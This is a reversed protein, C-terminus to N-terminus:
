LLGGSVRGDVAVTRYTTPDLPCGTRHPWKRRTYLGGPARWSRRTFLGGEYVVTPTLPSCSPFSGERNRGVGDTRNGAGGGPVWAGGGRALRPGHAEATHSGGGSLGARAAPLSSPPDGDAATTTDLSIQLSTLRRMVQSYNAGSELPHSSFQDRYKRSERDPSGEGPQQGYFIMRDSGM